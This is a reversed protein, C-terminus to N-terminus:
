HYRASTAGAGAREGSDDGVDHLYKDIIRKYMDM